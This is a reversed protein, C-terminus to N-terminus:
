VLSQLLFLAVRRLNRLRFVGFKAYIQALRAHTADVTPAFLGDGQRRIAQKVLWIRKRKANNRLLLRVPFPSFPQSPSITIAWRPHRPYSSYRPYRPNGLVALSFFIVLIVLIVLVGLIVLFVLIVLIGLGWGGLLLRPHALSPM